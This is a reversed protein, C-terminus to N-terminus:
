IDTKCYSVIQNSASEGKQCLGQKIRLCSFLSLESVCVKIAKCPAKRPLAQM